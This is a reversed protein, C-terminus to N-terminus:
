KFLIIHATRLTDQLRCFCVIMVSVAQPAWSTCVVVVVFLICSLSLMYNLGVRDHIAPNHLICVFITFITLRFCIGQKRNGIMKPQCYQTLIVSTCDTSINEGKIYFVIYKIYLIDRKILWLHRLVAAWSVFAQANKKQKKKQSFQSTFSCYRGAPIRSATRWTVRRQPTWCRKDGPGVSLFTEMINPHILTVNGCSVPLTRRPGEAPGELNANQDNVYTVAPVHINWPLPARGFM